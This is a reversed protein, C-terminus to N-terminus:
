EGSLVAKSFGGPHLLLKSIFKLRKCSQSGSIFKSTVQTSYLCIYKRGLNNMEKLPVLKIETPISRYTNQFLLHIHVFGPHARDM